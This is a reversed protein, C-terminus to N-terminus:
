VPLHHDIIEQCSIRLNKPLLNDKPLAALYRDENTTYVRKYIPHYNGL